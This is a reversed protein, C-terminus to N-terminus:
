EDFDRRVSTYQLVIYMTNRPKICFIVGTKKVTDIGQWTAIQAQKDKAHPPM